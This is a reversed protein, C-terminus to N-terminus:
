FTIQKAGAWMLQIIWATTLFALGLAMMDYRPSNATVAFIVVAAVALLLSLINM